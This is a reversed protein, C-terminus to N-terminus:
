KTESTNHFNKKAIEMLSNAMTPGTQLVMGYFVGNTIQLLTHPHGFEVLTGSDMVLIQDSDMITNLRHAITIVTCQSFQNRITSQILGDTQPDVNATAEDLVLIKNNRLIARALCILQRQGISLNSGGDFIASNLGLSLEKIVDKLEVDELAKWLMEDAYESFPDLNKRITGSFLVPEQPIISIKSRLDSLGIKQIDIGDILISGSTDTLQFLANILSSKGAGTRGVVGVKELPRITFTLNKLIPPDQPFYQLFVNVFKVEGFQPWSDSPKKEEIEQSRECEIKQYEFVREVSTMQNEVEASQRTAWQFLGILGLSQSVVLGVNGGSMSSEVLLCSFTVLAIYVTCSLDLYYAFAQSSSLFLFYTETHLDQLGDFEDILISEAQLARITNLGQLSANLHGYVPSRAIGELRKVNRSTTLYFARLFYFMVFIVVTPILLWPNVTAVVVVIGLLMFSYQFSDLITVPLMDDILGMDKSFRNLIRGSPNTNFFRMTGRIISSFMNYHLRESSRMCITYFSFNRFITLIAIMLIIGGYGYIYTETTLNWFESELAAHTANFRNEEATVWRAIFVEAFSVTLQLVLFLLFVISIFFWNSGAKIYSKYVDKSVTGESKQEENGDAKVDDSDEASSLDTEESQKQSSVRADKEEAQLLKAFNLGSQQLEEFTGEAQVVGNELLIINDVEKLYQLQHTVLVVTKNHLFGKICEDFLERGVHTDVASLPDDLLYIDAKQYVARALNVRARQGGSLSVGREGVVTMDGHPLSSLDSDLCCHNIVNRYHPESYPKNFIINQRVTGNFIWPEQSAYSINGIVEMDGKVLRLEKMFVHLLSSKGSGVPGIIAVLSGRKVKLNINSLVLDTSSELWKAQGDIISIAHHDQQPNPKLVAMSKNALLTQDVEESRLFHNIRKISISLEAARATSQTFINCMNIRLINFYTTLVFVKKATIAEGLHSYFLMSIFLCLPAAYVFFSLFGGQIFSIIRIFKIESRRLLSVLKVFPTEWNYMKIVQMGSIIENMVRVREDTKRAATARLKAILKAMVLQFPIFLLLVVVGIIASIGAEKYLFYSVIITQLPGIWLYQSLQIFFDFRSVDNSLLNVVHGVATERLAGKSLKLSKRYILSCTAVRMQMGIQTYSLLNLSVVFVLVLSCGVVGAAYGYAESKTIDTQGPAYYAILQGLLLPQLLRVVLESFASPIMQLAYSAAFMKFLVRTLSPQRKANSAKSEETKWILEIRDGLSKSQHYPLTKYVDSIEISKKRGLLFTPITYWLTCISLINANERPNPKDNNHLKLDM